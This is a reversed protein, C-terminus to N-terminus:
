FTVTQSHNNKIFNGDKKKKLNTLIKKYITIPNKDELKEINIQSLCISNPYYPIEQGIIKGDLTVVFGADDLTRQIIQVM